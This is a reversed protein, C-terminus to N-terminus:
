RMVQGFLDNYFALGMLGALLALGVFQGAAMARESLPSGKVLEILYYLLHGGDLIPIPLLNMIALSLSLLALFNLFWDPGQQASINAAKAISIPGSVNRLSAEGTLMRRLLGLTDGAMRGTERLAVPIAQLPGYRSIADFAPRPQQGIAIGLKWATADSHAVPKLHVQLAMREGDREVEILGNGGNRGLAQVQPAVQEASIIPNGDVALVRDGPRLVGDAASGPAVTAIVAPQLTFRWTLGALSPVQQEDFGEPLQSLALIHVRSVGHQTDETEVRVDKHDMAAITLQMSAESWSSVDREGIRVIREGPQFGAQLALGDTRGIIPAYDQKGIVFMAWLLAVCLLLNAIPGAAVIAIRQWVSKNNFALAQEAPAVEGEREDLMKVYGGLPIAAIVFETGHRDHRSWLPKGFGVSFRLVKVGCRRAVWFHGFEHFTVLVGLSVLMWWVSGFFNGM